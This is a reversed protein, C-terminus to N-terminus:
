NFFSSVGFIDKKDPINITCNLLGPIFSPIVPPIPLPLVDTQLTKLTRPM